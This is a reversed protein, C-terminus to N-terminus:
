EPLQLSYIFAEIENKSAPARKLLINATELAKDKQGNAAYAEALKVQLDLNNPETKVSFEYLFVVTKTDHLFQYYHIVWEAAHSNTLSLGHQISQVAIPGAQAFDKTKAYLIALTWLTLPDTPVMQLAQKAMNMAEEPEGNADYINALAMLPEVRGPALQNSKQANNIAEQSVRTKTKSAYHISSISSLCYIDARFPHRAISKKYADMTKLFLQDENMTRTKSSALESQLLTAYGESIMQTDYIFSFHNARDLASTTSPRNIKTESTALRLLYFEQITPFLFFWLGFPIVFSIWMFPYVSKINTQTKQLESMQILAFLFFLNQLSTVSDFAFLNQIFYATLGALCTAQWLVSVSKKKTINLISFIFLLLYALGSFIGGTVLMELFANHPKDQWASEFQYISSELYKDAVVYFNQHGVGLWPSDM